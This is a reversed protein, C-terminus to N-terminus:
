TGPLLRNATPPLESLDPLVAAALRGDRIERGRNIWVSKLGLRSAPEIDHMWSRAVHLWNERTAGHTERFRNFHALAPKYARVDEATVVDDFTVPMRKLTRAILDKDVNSLIALKWGGGRLGILAPAVDSFVPWDRLTEALVHEDGSALRIGQCGAARRLTEALVDRYLRFPTEAEVQPELQHYAHLLQKASGPSIQELAQAMGSEWDVLTGYCDFTAWRSVTM